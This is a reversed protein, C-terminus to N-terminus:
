DTVCDIIIVVANSMDLRVMPAAAVDSTSADVCTSWRGTSEMNKVYMVPMDRKYQMQARGVNDVLAVLLAGFGSTM